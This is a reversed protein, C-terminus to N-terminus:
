FGGSNLPLECHRSILAYARTAVCLHSVSPAESSPSERHASLTLILPRFGYNPLYKAIQLLIREGGGLTTALQDIVLLVGPLDRLKSDM